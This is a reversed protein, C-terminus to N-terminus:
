EYLVYEPEPRLRLVQAPTMLPGLRTDEDYFLKFGPHIYAPTGAMVKRWTERKDAPAGIGDVSKVLEVGDHRRLRHEDTVISAHLQHYVLVKDPLDHQRVLRSVYAAVQDLEAGTTHGFVQGPVQGPGVAWEPDLALGVDPNVLWRRYARVEDIFRARGPQINLLLLADHRRAAKLYRGIVDDSRRSRYMGDAGPASHVTTTILELVPMIQRDRGYPEAVRAIERVRADLDGVGLRGLASSGPAGVFGVLRYRPFVTRGGRPLEAPDASPSPPEGSRGNSGVASSPSRHDPTGSTPMGSSQQPEPSACGAALLAACLLAALRGRRLM